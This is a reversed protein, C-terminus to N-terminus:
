TANYCWKTSQDLLKLSMGQFFENGDKFEIMLKHQHLYTRTELIEGDVDIKINRYPEPYEDSFCRWMVGHITCPKTEAQKNLLNTEYQTM